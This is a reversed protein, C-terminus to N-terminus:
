QSPRAGPGPATLRVSRRLGGLECAIARERRASVRGTGCAATVLSQEGELGSRRLAGTLLDGAATEGNGDVPVCGWAIRAGRAALRSLVDAARTTVPELGLDFSIVSPEAREILEWPVACCLHLGWLPSSARLPDWVEEAGDTGFAALAPEDVVVLATLGREALTRVQSATTAALWRAVELALMLTTRRSPPGDRERELACALTLPGTVQLKVLGHEPPELALREIWARWARPWEHDREPSWGCRRPDAGLWEAIMDGEVRPLQPCFPLDYAAVAHAAAEAPDTFPLSGVGTTACAPLRDLAGM